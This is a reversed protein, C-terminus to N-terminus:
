DVVQLFGLVSQKTGISVKAKRVVLSLVHCDFFQSPAVRRHRGLEGLELFITRGIGSSNHIWARPGRSCFQYNQESKGIPSVNDNKAASTGDAVAMASIADKARFTFPINLTKNVRM